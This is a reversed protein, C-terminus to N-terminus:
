YKDDGLDIKKVRPPPTKSLDFDDDDLDLNIKRKREKPVPEDDFIGKQESIKRLKFQSIERQLTAAQGSLEQSAAASEESTASNTQVVASIQDIGQTIQHLANAQEKSAENIKEITSVIMATQKEVEELALATEEAITTGRKVTQVSNEILSTTQKAADASKSALNRVEDAVVAFGKGASGARAAEVAANLALINTQFAIDDIVKIIKGIQSSSENIESMANLMEQMHTNSVKIGDEADSIYENAKQVNKANEGVQASVEIISASLEEISSAQETAGQSLTQAGLAVQEAGSNVQEAALAISGLSYNLSESIKVLSNKIPIFDGIYDQTIEHSMDGSAMLELNNSIDSVYLKLTNITTRLADALAGLEDSSRYDISIDLMGTSLRTIAKTVAGVPKTIIRSVMRIALFIDIIFVVILMFLITLMSKAQGARIDEIDIGTFLIGIANGNSDLIPEYKSMYTKGFLEVEGKHVKQEKLVKKTVEANLKTGIQRVGDKTITTNIREDKLFITYENKTINKLSDLLQYDDLPFSVSVVGVIKGNWKVPVATRVALKLLTGEAITTTINGKLAESINDQNIISDGKKDNFSRLIVYGEDDTITIYEVDFRNEYLLKMLTTNIKDENKALIAKSLEDSKALTESVEKSLEEKENISSKLANLSSDCMVMLTNNILEANSYYSILACLSVAVILMALISIILKSGLKKM